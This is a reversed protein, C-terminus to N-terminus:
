AKGDLQTSGRIQACCTTLTHLKQPVAATRALHLLWPCPNHRGRAQRAQHRGRVEFIRHRGVGITAMDAMGLAHRMRKVDSSSLTSM